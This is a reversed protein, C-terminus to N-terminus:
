VDRRTVAVRVARQVLKCDAGDPDNEAIDARRRDLGEAFGKGPMVREVGVLEVNM